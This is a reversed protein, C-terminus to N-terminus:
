RERLGSDLSKLIPTALYSLLTKEGTVIDATVTMGPMLRLADGAGVDDRDLDITARFYPTGDPDLFTTPSIRAVRGHVKGFRSYDFTQVKIEVPHGTRIHGIDRTSVRAEVRLTADDPVINMLIAGPAVVGGDSRIRLDQVRGAIPAAVTLRGVRDNAQSIALDLEAAENTLASIESALESHFIARLEAIRAESERIREGLRVKETAMETRESALGLLAREEDIIKLRPFNGSALLARQAEIKEEGLEIQRGLAAHRIDLIRRASEREAMQQRLVETQREFSERRAELAQIEAAVIDAHGDGPVAADPLSGALAATLLDIRVAAAAQRTRLQHLETEAIKPALELLIQGAVVQDGEEVSVQSVIGGELHQVNQVAESTVIEGPSASVETLPMVASWAVAAALVFGLAFVTGITFRSTRKDDFLQSASIRIQGPQRGRAADSTDLMSTDTM